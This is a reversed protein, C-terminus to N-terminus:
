RIKQLKLVCGRPPPQAAFHISKLSLLMTEVCLRASAAAASIAAASCPQMLKLVCGRPPPQELSVPSFHAGGIPKLVCGRPPPKWGASPAEKGNQQTEVCLRASAAAQNKRNASFKKLHKLVCGRPPPQWM